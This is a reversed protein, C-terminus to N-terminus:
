KMFSDLSGKSRDEPKVGLIDALTELLKLEKQEETNLSEAKNMRLRYSKLILSIVLKLDDIRFNTNTLISSIKESGNNNNLIYCLYCLQEHLNKKDIEEPKKNIEVENLYNLEFSGSKKKGTNNKELTIEDLGFTRTAKISEDGTLIGQYFIKTLLYFSMSSGLTNLSRGTLKTVIEKMVYDRANYILNEFNTPSFDKNYSKITTHNTTVELIKGYVMILLDTLPISLLRPVSITALIKKIKDELEPIIDEYYVTSEHKIKRCAVVVSSMFSTKGRTILSTPHETHIAYSSKVYFKSDRLSELLLNWAQVSSHAFFVILLGDDNLIKNMSIFANKFGKEFFQQALKKDGFRGWSECIDEDLKVRSPLEPYYKQLIRSIWVYFFESLEGYQVDALYPPDTIILDYNLSNSNLKLVSKLSISIDGNNLASFAIATKISNVINILSGRIKNFPNIEVHNFIMAPRRLALVPEPKEGGVNWITCLANVDVHKCVIFSLYLSIIKAFEKDIIGDCISKINKLLTTMVLLQRDSYFNHWHTIGYHWLMNERRHSPLIDENPIL